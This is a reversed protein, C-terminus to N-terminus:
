CACESSVSIFLLFLVIAAFYYDCVAFHDFAGAVVDEVVRLIDIYSEEYDAIWKPIGGKGRNGVGELVMWLLLM